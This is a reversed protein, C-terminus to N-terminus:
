IHIKSNLITESKTEMDYFHYNRLVVWIGIYTSIHTYKPQYTHIYVYIYLTYMICTYLKCGYINHMLYMSQTYINIYMSHHISYVQIQNCTHISLYLTHTTYIIHTYIYIHVCIYTYICIKYM